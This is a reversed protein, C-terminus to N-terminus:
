AAMLTTESGVYRLSGDKLGLLIKRVMQMSMLDSPEKGFTELEDLQVIPLHKYKESIILLPSHFSRDGIIYFLYKETIETDMKGQKRRVRKVTHIACPQVYRLLDDKCEYYEEKTERYKQRAIPFYRYQREKDRYNKARKNCSFIASSLMETTVIGAKLCKKMENSTHM